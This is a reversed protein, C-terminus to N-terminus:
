KRRVSLLRVGRISASLFVCNGIETRRRIEMVDLLVRIESQLAGQVVIPRM